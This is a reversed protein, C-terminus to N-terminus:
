EMPRHDADDLLEEDDLVDTKRKGRARHQREAEDARKGSENLGRLAMALVERMCKGAEDRYRRDDWAYPGRSNLLWSYGNITARIENLTGALGTRDRDIAEKAGEARVARLASALCDIAASERMVSEAMDFVSTSIYTLPGIPDFLRDVLKLARAAGPDAM